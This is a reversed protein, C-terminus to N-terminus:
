ISPSRTLSGHSTDMVSGDQLDILAADCITELEHSDDFEPFVSPLTSHQSSTNMETRDSIERMLAQTHVTNYPSDDSVDHDNMDGGVCRSPTSYVNFARETGQSTQRANSYMFGVRTGLTRYVIVMDDCLNKMLLDDTLGNEHMYSKMEKTFEAIQMRLERTEDRNAKYLFEQTRLRYKYKTLDAPENFTTVQIASDASVISVIPQSDKYQSEVTQSDTGQSEVTQSDTGQSEDTKLDTGQSLQFTKKMESSMDGIELDTVWENTKWNYIKWNQVNIRIERVSTFLIDTLINGYALGSKEINDIFYYKGEKV